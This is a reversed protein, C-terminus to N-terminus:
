LLRRLRGMPKGGGVIETGDGDALATRNRGARKAAYLARDASEFLEGTGTAAALESSVGFSATLPLRDGAFEESIAARIREAVASAEQPDAGPLIVAFEEGGIRSPHDISRVGATIRAAARILVQDGADHGFADNIRKFRDLDSVILALPADGRVGRDLELDFREDFSRRNPIGTLQDTYADASLGDTVRLLRIRTLAVLLALAGFMLVTTILLYGGFPTDRGVLLAALAIAPLSAFVAAAVPPFFLLCPAVVFAYLPAFVPESGREAALAALTVVGTGAAAALWFFWRPLRRYGILFIASFLASAATVGAFLWPRALLSQGVLLMTLGMAVGVGYLTGFGSAAVAPDGLDRAGPSFLGRWRLRDGLPPDRLMRSISSISSRM